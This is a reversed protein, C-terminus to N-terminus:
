RALGAASRRPVARAALAGPRHRRGAPRAGGLQALPPQLPGRRRAAGAVPLRDAPGALEDDSYRRAALVGEAAQAVSGKLGGLEDRFARITMAGGTERRKYLESLTFALLPLTDAADMEELLAPVLGPEVELAALEAPGEIIRTLGEAPLPGLSQGGIELGGLAPDTQLAGLFDSRM